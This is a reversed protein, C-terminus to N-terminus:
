HSRPAPPPAMAPSVVVPVRTLAELMGDVARHYDATRQRDLELQADRLKNAKGAERALEELAQAARELVHQV